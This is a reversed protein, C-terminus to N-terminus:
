WRRLTFRKPAIYSNADLRIAEDFAEWGREPDPRQKRLLFMQLRIREVELLINATQEVQNDVATTLIRVMKWLLLIAILLGVTWLIDFIM